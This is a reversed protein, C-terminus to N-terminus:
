ATAGDHLLACVACLRAETRALVWGDLRVTDRDAFDRRLRDGIAARLDSPERALATLQRVLLDLDAEVPNAALYARGIVTADAQSPLLERLAVDFEPTTTPTLGALSRAHAARGVLAFLAALGVFWRRPFSVGSM